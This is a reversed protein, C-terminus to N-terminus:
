RKFSYMYYQMDSAGIIAYEGIGLPTTIMIKYKGNQTKAWDFDINDSIPHVYASNSNRNNVFTAYRQNKTYDISLRAITLDTPITKTYFVPNSEKVSNYASKGKSTLRFKNVFSVMFAQKVAQGVDGEVGGQAKEVEILKGNSEYWVDQGEPFNHSVTINDLRNINGTYHEESVCSVGILSILLLIVAKHM